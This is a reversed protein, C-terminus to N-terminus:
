RFSVHSPTLHLFYQVLVNLKVQSLELYILALATAEMGSWQMEAQMLRCRKLFESQAERHHQARSKWQFKGSPPWLPTHTNEAARTKRPLRVSTASQPTVLPAFFLNRLNGWHMVLIGLYRMLIESNDSSKYLYLPVYRNALDRSRFNCLIRMSGCTGSTKVHEARYHRLVLPGWGRVTSEKQFISTSWAMPLAHTSTFDTKSRKGGEETGSISQPYAPTRQGGSTNRLIPM